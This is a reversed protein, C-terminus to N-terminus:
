KLSRLNDVVILPSAFVFPSKLSENVQKSEDRWEDLHTKWRVPTRFEFSPRKNVKITRSTIVIRLPAPM